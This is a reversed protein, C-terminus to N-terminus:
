CGFLQFHVDSQGLLSPEPHWCRPLWHGSTEPKRDLTRNQLHAYSGGVEGLRVYVECSVCWLTITRINRVNAAEWIVPLGNDVDRPPLATATDGITWEFISLNWHSWCVVGLVRRMAKATIDARPEDSLGGVRRNDVPSQLCGGVPVKVVSNLTQAESDRAHGKVGTAM